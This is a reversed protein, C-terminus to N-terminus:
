PGLEYAPVGVFKGWSRQGSTHVAVVTVDASDTSFPVNVQYYSWDKKGTYFSVESRSLKRPGALLAAIPHGNELICLRVANSPIFPIFTVM